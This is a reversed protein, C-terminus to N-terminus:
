TALFMVMSVSVPQNLAAGCDGSMGVLHGSSGGESSGVSSRLAVATM